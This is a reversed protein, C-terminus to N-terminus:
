SRYLRMNALGSWLHLQFTNAGIEVLVCSVYWFEARCQCTMHRCGTNLEVMTRCNYCRRWGAREAQELTRDLGFDQPCDENSPHQPGRCVTCLKTSCHQCEIAGNTRKAYRTDIWKGCQSSVCYYRNGAPVAYELAKEDFIIRTQRPLNDRITKKPIETLCCKPPFNVEHQISTSVLQEFCPHCYSHRCPLSIATAGPIDEFCGTCERVAEETKQPSPSSDGKSKGSPLLRFLRHSKKTRLKSALFKRELATMEPNTLTGNSLREQSSIALPQDQVIPKPETASEISTNSESSLRPSSTTLESDPTPLTSAMESSEANMSADDQILIRLNRSTTEALNAQSQLLSARMARHEDLSERVINKIVLPTDDKLYGLEEPIEFDQWPIEEVIEPIERVVNVASGESATRFSDTSPRASVIPTTLEALTAVSCRPARLGNPSRAPRSSKKSSRFTHRTDHPAQEAPSLSATSSHDWPPSMPSVRGQNVDLPDHPEVVPSKKPSKASSPRYGYGDGAMPGNSGGLMYDLIKGM